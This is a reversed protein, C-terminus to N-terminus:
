QPEVPQTIQSHGGEAKGWSRDRGGERGDWDAEAVGTPAEVSVMEQWQGPRLHMKEATSQPWQRRRGTETSHGM